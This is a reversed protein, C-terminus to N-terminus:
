INKISKMTKLMCINTFTCTGCQLACPTNLKDRNMYTLTVEIM